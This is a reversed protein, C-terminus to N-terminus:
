RGSGRVAIRKEDKETKEGLVWSGDQKKTFQKSVLTGNRGYLRRKTTGRRGQGVEERGAPSKQFLERSLCNSKGHAGLAFAMGREEKKTTMEGGKKEKTM